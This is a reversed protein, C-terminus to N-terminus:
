KPCAHLHIKFLWACSSAVEYTKRVCPSFASTSPNEGQIIITIGNAGLRKFPYFM